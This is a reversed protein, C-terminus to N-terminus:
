SGAKKEAQAPSAFETLTLTFKGEHTEPSVKAVEEKPLKFNECFKGGSPKKLKVELRDDFEECVVRMHRGDNQDSWAEKCCKRTAEILKKAREESVGVQAASHEVIAGLAAFLRPDDDLNCETRVNKPNM